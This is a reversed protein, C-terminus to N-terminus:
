QGGGKGLVQLVVGRGSLVVNSGDPVDLRNPDRLEISEVTALRQRAEQLERLKEEVDAFRGAFLTGPQHRKGQRQIFRIAEDLTM